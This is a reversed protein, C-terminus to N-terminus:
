YQDLFTAQGRKGAVQVYLRAALKPLYEPHGPLGSAKAPVKGLVSLTVGGLQYAYAFKPDLTTVM